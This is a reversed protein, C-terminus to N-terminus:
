AAECDRKADGPKVVAFRLRVYDVTWIGDCFLHPRTLNEVDAKVAARDAAPVLALFTEAFTELWDGLAGPLTTPRSILAISRVAFGRKELRARYDEVTPFYWPMSPRGDIGRRALAALLAALVQAVNGAGGCEAVFRGGPKLARWVGDIVADPARMWHLAANSFVADFETAFPLHAGDVVRADLGRAAAAAVQEASQDVGVVSAQAALTATLAGDGCGLDLIREGSRPALLAVVGAGLAPVFAANRRYREPDWRQETEPKGPVVGAARSDGATM